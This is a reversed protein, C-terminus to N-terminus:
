RDGRAKRETDITNAMLLRQSTATDGKGHQTGPQIAEVGFAVLPQCALNQLTTTQKDGLQRRIFSRQSFM